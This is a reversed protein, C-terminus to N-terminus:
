HIFIQWGSKTTILIEIDKQIKQPSFTDFILLNSRKIKVSHANEFSIKYKGQAQIDLKFVRKARRNYAFTQVPLFSKSVLVEEGTNISRLCIKFDNLKVNFGGLIFIYYAKAELSVISERDLINIPKLM